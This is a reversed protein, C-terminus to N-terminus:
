QEQVKAWLVLARARHAEDVTGHLGALAAAIVADAVGVNRAGHLHAHLQRDQGSAVCAAITCLERRGLDLQPRSLVKGYGEVIMWEDMLPHLSAMNRRLPEYLGGYVRACTAEGRALFDEGAGQVVGKGQVGGWVRLANIARPFGCFLYSQLLLEEVWVASTGAQETERLGNRVDDETGAAIRAALRVLARTATDFSFTAHTTAGDTMSVIGTTDPLRM